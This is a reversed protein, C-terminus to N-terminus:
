HECSFNTQFGKETSDQIPKHIQTVYFSNPLTGETEIKHFLKFLIPILEKFTQYFETICGDPGPSTKTPLIKIVAEIKKSIIPSIKLNNIQDQDLKPLQNLFHDIKNLNEL